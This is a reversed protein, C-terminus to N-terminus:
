SARRIRARARALATEHDFTRGADPDALGQTIAQRVYVEHALYDWRADAPLQEVLRLADPRVDTGDTLGSVDRLRVADALPGIRGEFQRVGAEAAPAGM